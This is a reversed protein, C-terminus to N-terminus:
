IPTCLTALPYLTHWPYSTCIPFLGLRIIGRTGPLLHIGQVVNPSFADTQQQDISMLRRGATLEVEQGDVFSASSQRRGSSNSDLIHRPQQQYTNVQQQLQFALNSATFFSEAFSPLRSLLSAVTSALSASTANHTDRENEEIKKQGDTLEQGSAKLRTAWVNSSNEAITCSPRSSLGVSISSSTPSLLAICVQLLSLDVPF